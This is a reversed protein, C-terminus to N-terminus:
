FEFSVFAMFDREEVDFQFALLISTTHVYSSSGVRFCVNVKSGHNVLKDDELCHMVLVFEFGDLLEWHRPDCELERMLVVWM